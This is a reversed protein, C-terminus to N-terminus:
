PWDQGYETEDQPMRANGQWVVTISLYHSVQASLLELLPACRMHSAYAPDLAPATPIIGKHPALRFSIFQICTCAWHRPKTLHCLPLHSCSCIGRPLSRGLFECCKEPFIGIPNGDFRGASGLQLM